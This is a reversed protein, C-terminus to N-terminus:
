RFLIFFGEVRKVQLVGNAVTLRYKGNRIGDFYLNVSALGANDLSSDAVSFPLAASGDPEVDVNEAFNELYVNAGQAMALNRVTGRSACDIKFTSLSSGSLKLTADSAVNFTAAEPVSSVDSPWAVAFKRGGNFWTKNAYTFRPCEDMEDIITWDTGDASAELRWSYPARTPYAATDNGSCINYGVVPDADAALHINFRLWTSEDNPDPWAAPDPYWYEGTESNHRDCNYIGKTAVDGDFMKSPNEGDTAPRYYAHNPTISFYGAPVENAPAEASDTYFNLGEAVNVGSADYLAIEGIELPWFMTSGIAVGDYRKKISVRFFKKDVAPSANAFALTGADVTVNGSFANEGGIELTGGGTKFVEGAGTFGGGPIALRDGLSVDWVAAAGSPIGVAGGSRVHLTDFVTERSLELTGGSEVVYQIGYAPIPSSVAAIPTGGNLWTSNATIFYSSKFEEALTMWVGCDLSAQVAWSDPTRKGGYAATDNGTAINYARVPAAGDALRMNVTFWTTPNLYWCYKGSLMAKTGLVDDFLNQVSENGEEGFNTNYSFGNPTVSFEGANLSSAAAENESALSLGSNLRSGSADYLAFEGLELLNAYYHAGYRNKCTFKFYKPEITLTEGDGVVAESTMDALADNYQRTVPIPTEDNLWTSNDCVLAGDKVVYGSNVVSYLTQWNVGDASAEIRWSVPQRTGGDATTAADGIGINFSAVAPAGNTLRINYRLWSKEDNVDTNYSRFNTQQTKTSLDGDFLHSINSDPTDPTEGNSEAYYPRSISYEGPALLNAPCEIKAAPSISNTTTLRNGEADYLALESMEYNAQYNYDSGSGNRYKGTICFRYYTAGKYQAAGAAASALVAAAAAAVLKLTKM